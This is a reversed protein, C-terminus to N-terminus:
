GKVAGIMVGKVFYRQLFPYLCLVPATSVVIVAYKVTEALLVVDDTSSAGGGTMDSTTGEILIGRLILQLPFLARNRLFVQANFFANWHQVAYYLVLVALTPVVLQVMISVLVRLQSAGDIIASEEMEDPIAMFATRMIIMNFTNIAVPFILSWITNSIGLGQVVLFLPILGGSFYMTFVVLFTILKRFMLYSRSIVYGGMITLVMNLSVGVAIIFLTNRYGVLINPNRFVAKYSELSLGLPRILAGRHAFMRSPESFSAFLVYILPYLCILTFSCLLIINFVNFINEGRTYRISM